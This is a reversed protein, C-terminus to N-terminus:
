AFVPKGNMHLSIPEATKIGCLKRVFERRGTENVRLMKKLRALGRVNIMREGVNFARKTRVMWMCHVEQEPELKVPRDSWERMSTETKTQILTIPKM